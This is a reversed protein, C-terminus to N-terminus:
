HVIMSNLGGALTETISSNRGQGRKRMERSLQQMGAGTAGECTNKEAPCDWEPRKFSLRRMRAKWNMSWLWEAPDADASDYYYEAQAMSFRGAIAGITTLAGGEATKGTAAEDGRTEEASMAAADGFVVSRIQFMSEGLAACSCMEQPRAKKIQESAQENPAAGKVTRKEICEIIDTFEKVEIDITTTGLARFQGKTPVEHKTECLPEAPDFNWESFANEAFSLDQGPLRCQIPHARPGFRVKEKEVRPEDIITPEDEVVRNGELRFHRIRTIHRYSIKEILGNKRPDCQTRAQRRKVECLREAERDAHKCVGEEADYAKKVKELEDAYRECADSSAPTDERNCTQGANTRVEPIPVRVTHSPAKPKPGLDCYYLAYAVSADGVVGKLPDLVWNSKPLRGFMAKLPFMILDATYEGAKVCLTRYEGEVSPLGGIIPFTFAVQAVPQYNQRALKLANVNALVPIARRVVKQLGSLARMTGEVTKTAAPQISHKITKNVAHAEKAAPAFPPVFFALALLVKAALSLLSSLMSLMVLFALLAALIINILALLNMGRAHIVASSFATADAADQMREQAVIAAGLGSVYYICGIVIAAMFVALVMIAGEDNRVIRM